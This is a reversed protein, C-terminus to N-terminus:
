PDLLVEERYLSLLHILRILCSILLFFRREQRGHAFGRPRDEAEGVHVTGAPVTAGGGSREKEEIREIGVAWMVTKKSYNGHTRYAVTTVMKPM